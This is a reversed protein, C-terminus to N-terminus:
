PALSSGCCYLKVHLSSIWAGKADQAETPADFLIGNPLVTFDATAASLEAALTARDLALAGTVASIAGQAFLKPDPALPQQPGSENPQARQHYALECRVWFNGSQWPEEEGEGEASVVWCPMIKDLESRGTYVQILPNIFPSIVAVLAMECKDPLIYLM